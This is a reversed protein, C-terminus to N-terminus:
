RVAGSVSLAPGRLRGVDCIPLEGFHREHERSFHAPDRYGVQSGATAADYEGALLLRRAEQLRLQKQFQLPSMATVQKFHHHLSSVSMGLQRALSAIRLPKDCGKHLLEIARAKRHARGHNVALQERRDRQEGQALRYVIERVILPALVRYDRPAAAVRVIRLVADSLGAHLGSVSLARVSGSARSAPLGAEILVSM